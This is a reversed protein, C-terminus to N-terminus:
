LRELVYLRPHLGSLTIKMEQDLYWDTQQRLVQQMLKIEHTLVTFKAGRKAVRAAETLLAPYLTTNEEHTGVLQGFPLDTCLADVSSDDLDLYRADSQVLEISDLYGASTINERACAIADRDIDIGIVRNASQMMAREILITGSGCAINLFVDDQTPSTLQAMAYAVAANLAGQMNCIRYDRTALPRPTLRTLVDWSGHGSPTPRVRIWMDGENDGIALGVTNALQDKIRTMVSSGSGAASIHLSQFQKNGAIISSVQGALRTFHEHGLLARPRPILFRQLAYVAIVSRLGLLDQWMGNYTFTVSDNTSAVVSGQPKVLNKIEQAAVEQLGAACEAEYLNSMSVDNRLQSYFSLLLGWM